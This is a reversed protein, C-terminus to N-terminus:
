SEARDIGTESSPPSFIDLVVTDELAEAGHPCNPPLLVTEGPRAVIHRFEESGPEGVGFRICGELVVTIQENTHAHSEISFGKRLSIHSIMANEGILRRRELLPMPADVPLDDWRAHSAQPGTSM